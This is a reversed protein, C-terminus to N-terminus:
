EYTASYEQPISIENFVGCFGLILTTSIFVGILIIVYALKTRLPQQILNRSLWNFASALHVFLAVVAFFYYPIFYFQFPESYFGAIGYYINTDLEAGFRGYLVAGVHNIFFYALYLGSIAQAKELVGSRQGRRQWVFYLGSCLQFMVCLLLISEAIVNRYVLRFTDMFEIHQQVGGLIYLHNILHFLIFSGILLASM